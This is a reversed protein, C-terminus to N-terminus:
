IRTVPSYKSVLLNKSPSWCLVSVQNPSILFLIQHTLYLPLSLLKESILCPSKQIASVQIEKDPNKIYKINEPKSYICAFKARLCPKEILEIADPEKSVALIQLEESPNEIFKIHYPNKLIVYKKARECPKSIMNIAHEDLRVATCQLDESPESISGISIPNRLILRLEQNFLSEFIESIKAKM